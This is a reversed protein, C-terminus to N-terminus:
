PLLDNRFEGNNKNFDEAWEEWVARKLENESETYEASHPSVVKRGNRAMSRALRCRRSTSRKMKAFTRLSMWCLKKRHVVAALSIRKLTTLCTGDEKYYRRAITPAPLKRLRERNMRVFTGYTDVAHAELLEM